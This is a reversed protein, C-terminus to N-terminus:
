LAEPEELNWITMKVLDRIESEKLLPKLDKIFRKDNSIDIAKLTSEIAMKNLMKLLKKYYKYNIKQYNNAIYPLIVSVYYEDSKYELKKNKFLSIIFKIITKNKIDKNNILYKTLLIRIYLNIKLNNWNKLAYEKIVINKQNNEVINRLLKIFLDNNQTLIRMYEKNLYIRSYLLLEKNNKIKLALEKEVKKIKINNKDNYKLLTLFLDNNKLDIINILKDPLKIDNIILSNLFVTKNNKNITKYITILDNETFIFFKPLLFLINNLLTTNKNTYLKQLCQKKFKKKKEINLTIDLLSSTFFIKENTSITKILIIANFFSIKKISKLSFVRQIVLSNKQKIANMLLKFLYKSDNNNFINKELYSLAIFYIPEYKIIKISKTNLNKVLKIRKILKIDKLNLEKKTFNRTKIISSTKNEADKNIDKLYIKLISDNNLTELKKFPIFEQNYDTGLSFLHLYIIFFIM